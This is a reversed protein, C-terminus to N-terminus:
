IPKAMSQPLYAILNITDKSINKTPLHIIPLSENIISFTIELILISGINDPKKSFIIFVKSNIKTTSAASEFRPISVVLKIATSPATPKAMPILKLSVKLLMPAPTSIINKRGNLSPSKISIFPTLPRAPSIFRNLVSIWVESLRVIIMGFECTIAFRM